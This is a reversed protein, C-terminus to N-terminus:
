KSLFIYTAYVYDPNDVNNSLSVTGKIMPENLFLDIEYLPFKQAM